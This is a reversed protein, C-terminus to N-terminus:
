KGIDEPRNFQRSARWGQYFAMRQLYMLTEDHWERGIGKELVLRNFAAEARQTEIVEIEEPSLETAQM